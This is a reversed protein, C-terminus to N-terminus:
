SPELNIRLAASSAPLGIAISLLSLGALIRIEVAAWGQNTLAQTAELGFILLPILFPMVLLIALFGAGQRGCLLAGALTVYAALAPASIALTTMLAITSAGSLGFLTGILPTIIFLPMFGTLIFAAWKGLCLTLPSVDNLLLQVLSGQQFDNQFINQFSLLMSFLIALWILPPGLRQLESLQGGLAIGCLALFASMFVAGLMWQGGSRRALTLERSLIISFANM